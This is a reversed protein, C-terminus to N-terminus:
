AGGVLKLAKQFQGLSHPAIRTPKDAVMLQMVDRGTNFSDGMNAGTFGTYTWGVMNKNGGYLPDMFFGSLVMFILEWFFEHPVIDNFETPKDDNLDQLVQIRQENSLDEFNSGYAQNSYTELAEIGYRWFFRPTMNYQYTPGPFPEVPTGEPYTIGDVTIPGPQGSLVFPGKMYMRAGNGYEGALRKDIFNLVNAEKAGPGNSDSPLITEAIAEIATAETITLTALGESSDVQAQLDSVNSQLSNIQSTDQQIQSNLQNIKDNADKLQTQAQQLDINQGTVMNSLVPIEVASAIGVGVAGAAVYKLFSRRNQDTKKASPAPATEAKDDKNSDEM